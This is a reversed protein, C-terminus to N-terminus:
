PTDGRQSKDAREYTILAAGPKEPLAILLGHEMLERGTMQQSGLKAGEAAAVQVM